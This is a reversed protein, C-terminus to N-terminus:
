TESGKRADRSRDLGVSKHLMLKGFVPPWLINKGIAIVWDSTRIVIRLLSDPWKIQFLTTSRVWFHKWVPRVQVSRVEFRELKSTRGIRHRVSIGSKGGWFYGFLELVHWFWFKPLPIAWTKAIQRFIAAGLFNCFPPFTALIKLMKQCFIAVEPWESSATIAVAM